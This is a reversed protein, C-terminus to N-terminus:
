STRRSTGHGTALAGAGFGDLFDNKFLIGM